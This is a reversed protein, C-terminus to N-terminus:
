ALRRYLEANKELAREAVAQFEADSVTTPASQLFSRLGDAAMQGASIHLQRARQELQQALNDDLEITFTTM